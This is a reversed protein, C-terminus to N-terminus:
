NDTCKDGGTQSEKMKKIKCKFADIWSPILTEDEKIDEGSYCGQIFQFYKELDGDVAFYRRDEWEVRVRGLGRSTAGGLAIEGREFPLLGMMLMGLQWAKANEVVIECKFRTDAPVVEYDYLMGESATETDRDMAVGNRIQFQDFWLNKDVLLDKVYIRSAFWPSGFLHCVLCMRSLIEETLKEDEKNKKKLKEMDGSTICCEKLDTPICAGTKGHIQSRILQEVRSRLVGKFSSGPIYPRGFADKVVPLDTGTPEISRGGGIRLATEAVIDGKLRLRSEFKHFM